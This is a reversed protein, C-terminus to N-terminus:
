AAKEDNEGVISHGRGYAYYIILGIALWVTFAFWPLPIGWIRPSNFMLAVMLGFATLASLAPILRPGFPVQFGGANLEPHKKRLIPVAASTLMFAALVGMNTLSGVFDIPTLAATLAIVIGFFLTSFIPTRWTPHLRTFFPPLLGDRSMSFFIRSQGFLLVLLVTTLGAIAGVSIIVGAWPLGARIVAFAVPSPVNLENFPVMGTLVVVVPIYLLTCIALSALVAFPLDRAPNLSEEAATSVADFGFYAFFIFAAGGFVGTWGFPFYGGAGTAPGAPLHWNAPNVHGM